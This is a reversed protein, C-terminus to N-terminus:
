QTAEMAQQRYQVPSLGNLKVKIRKHNYYHIYRHIATSLEDINKFKWTRLLESKLLSFFNEAMANDLCNGKRSMSQELGKNKIVNRYIHHQYHWGQDSHILPREEGDLRALAKNTMEEILALNPSKGLSYAVVEQNFLDIVPSLFLREGNIKFETVDTVWKQNPQEAYFDRGLVNEATRGMMGRYSNYRVKRATAKLQMQQMLRQVTKHNLHCAHHRLACHVRRYGYWGNHETFIARILQREEAYKDPTELAKVQYYFSSRKM